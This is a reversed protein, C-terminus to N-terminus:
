LEGSVASSIVGKIKYGMEEKFLMKGTLLKFHSKELQILCDQSPKLQVFRLPKGIGRM